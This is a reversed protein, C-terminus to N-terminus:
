LSTCQPLLTGGCHGGVEAACCGGQGLNPTMPHAADGAVTILSSSTGMGPMRWRVVM